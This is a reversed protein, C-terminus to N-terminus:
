ARHYPHNTLLSHARYIQELLLARALMHPWTMPGLAMTAHAKDLLSQDHGDQGGLVFALHSAGRNQWEQIMTAFSASAHSAGQEDLAIIKDPAAKALAALLLRAEEQKRQVIPLSAKADLEIVSVPWPLQKIFKDCLEREPSPKIKGIAAITIKM